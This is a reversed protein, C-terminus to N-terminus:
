RTRALVDAIIEYVSENSVLGLHTSQVEYDSAADDTKCMRWDVCGDTKSYIAVQRVSDPVGDHLTKLFDCTCAGTFCAPEVDHGHRNRIVQRLGDAALLVCPHIAIGRFPTGLTIVSRVAHPMMSALVRATLGGYSYGVLHVKKRTYRACSRITDVARGVLLNPCDDNVRIGSYYGRYGIRGLWARFEKMGHDTGLFGPVVIVASGDGRPVGFGSYVMSRRLRAEEVGYLLEQWIPLPVAQHSQRFGRGRSLM